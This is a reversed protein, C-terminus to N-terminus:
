LPLQQFLNNLDNFVGQCIDQAEPIFFGLPNLILTNLLTIAPGIFDAWVRCIALVDAPTYAFFM